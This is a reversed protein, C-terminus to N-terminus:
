KRSGADVTEDAAWERAFVEKTAQAARNGFVVRVTKDDKGAVRVMCFHVIQGPELDALRKLGDKINIKAKPTLKM